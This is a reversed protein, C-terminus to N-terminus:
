DKACQEREESSELEAALYLTQTKDWTDEGITERLAGM